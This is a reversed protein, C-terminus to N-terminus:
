EHDLKTHHEKEHVSRPLTYGCDAGLGNLTSKDGDGNDGSIDEMDEM